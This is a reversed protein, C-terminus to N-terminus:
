DCDLNFISPSSCHQSFVPVDRFEHFRTEADKYLVSEGIGEIEDIERLWGDSENSESSFGKFGSSKAINMPSSFDSSPHIKSSETLRLFLPSELDLMSRVDPLTIPGPVTPFISLSKSEIRTESESM